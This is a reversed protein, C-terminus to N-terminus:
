AFRIYGEGREDEGIELATMDKGLRSRLVAKVTEFTKGEIRIKKSM